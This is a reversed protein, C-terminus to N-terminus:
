VASWKEGHRGFGQLNKDGYQTFRLNRFLTLAMSNGASEEIRFYEYFLALTKRAPLTQQNAHFWADAHQKLTAALNTYNEAAGNVKERIISGLALMDPPTRTNNIRPDVIEWSRAKNWYSKEREMNRYNTSVMCDLLKIHWQLVDDHNSPLPMPLKLSRNNIQPTPDGTPM